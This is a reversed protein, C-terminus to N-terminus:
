GEAGEVNEPVSQGGKSNGKIRKMEKMLDAKGDLAADLLKTARINNALKKCRRVAYHFKNKTRAMVQHLAGQNPSGASVWVSHWFKSDQRFPEVEEKWGPLNHTVPCDKNPNSPGSSKGGSMPITVHSTEIAASLLDLLYSDREESCQKM